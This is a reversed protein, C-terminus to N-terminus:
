GLRLGVLDSRELTQRRVPIKDVGVCAETGISQPRFFFFIAYSDIPM